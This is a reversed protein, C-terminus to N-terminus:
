GSLRTWDKLYIPSYLFRTNKLWNEWDKWVCRHLYSYLSSNYNPSCGWIRDASGEIWRETELLLNRRQKRSSWVQFEQGYETKRCLRQVPMM